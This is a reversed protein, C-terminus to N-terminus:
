LGTVISTYIHGIGDRGFDFDSINGPHQFDAERVAAPKLQRELVEPHVRRGRFDFPVTRPLFDEHQALFVDAHPCDFGNPLIGDFDDEIVAVIGAQESPPVQMLQSPVMRGVPRAVLRAARFRSLRGPFLKEISNM